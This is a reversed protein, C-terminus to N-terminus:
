RAKRNVRTPMPGKPIPLGAGPTSGALAKIRKDVTDVQTAALVRPLKMMTVQLKAVPTQGERDGVTIVTVPTDGVAKKLRRREAAVLETSGRGEALLVVGPRGIARHVMGQDRNVQVAPTVRWGGRVRQAVAAAVGPQGAVSAYSAKQVRRTFLATAVIFGVLVGLIGLFIPAHVVFGIGVLLGLPLLFGALAVLGVRPDTQRTLTYAQRIQAIRGLKEPSEDGKGRRAM